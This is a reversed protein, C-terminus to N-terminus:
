GFAFGFDFDLLVCMFGGVGQRKGVGGGGLPLPFLFPHVTCGSTKESLDGTM